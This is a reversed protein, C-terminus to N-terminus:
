WAVQQRSCSRRWWVGSRKRSSHRTGLETGRRLNRPSVRGGPAKPDAMGHRSRGRPGVTAQRRRWQRQSKSGQTPDWKRWSSASAGVMHMRSTMKRRGVKTMRAAKRWWCRWHHREGLRDGGRWEVQQRSWRQSWRRRWRAVPSRTGARGYRSRGWSRGRARGRWRQLQSKVRRDQVCKKWSPASAGVLHTQSTRKRGGTKTMRVTKRWWCGGTRKRGGTRRRGSTGRRRKSAPSYMDTRRDSTGLGGRSM